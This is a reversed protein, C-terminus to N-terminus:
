KKALAFALQTKDFHTSFLLFLLSSVFHPAYRRVLFSAAARRHLRPPVELIESGGLSRKLCKIQKSCLQQAASIRLRTSIKRSFFMINERRFCILGKFKKLFENEQQLRLNERELRKIEKSSPKSCPNPKTNDPMTLKQFFGKVRNIGLIEVPLGNEEFIKRASKGANYESLARIKFEDTFQIKRRSLKLVNLNKELLEIEDPSFLKNSM